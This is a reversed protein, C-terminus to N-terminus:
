HTWPLMPKSEAFLGVHYIVHLYQTNLLENRAYHELSTLMNETWRDFLSKNNSKRRKEVEVEEKDQSSIVFM